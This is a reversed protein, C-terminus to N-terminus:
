KCYYGIIQATRRRVLRNDHRLLQPLAFAMNNASIKALSEAAEHAYFISEYLELLPEIVIMSDIGGLAEVMSRRAQHDQESRLAKLLHPVSSESGIQGLAYAAGSRVESSSDSLLEHLPEIAEEARLG